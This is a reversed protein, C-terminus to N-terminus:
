SAPRLCGTGNVGSDCWESMTASTSGGCYTRSRDEDWSVFHDVTGVPEYMASYACLGRFGEALHPKFPSWYDKPRKAEPHSELWVAGPKEAKAAFDAPKPVPEFRIM